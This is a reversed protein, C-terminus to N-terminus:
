GARALQGRVAGGPFARTHINVYYSASNKVIDKALAKTAAKVCGKAKYSPRSFEVVIMGNVGKKGKHIHAAVPTGVKKLKTFTWCIERTSTDVTVAAQGTAGSPGAPKEAKASLPATLDVEAAPAAAPLALLAAASLPLVVFSPRM